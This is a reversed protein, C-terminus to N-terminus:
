SLHLMWHCKVCKGTTFGGDEDQELVNEEDQFSGAGALCDNRM